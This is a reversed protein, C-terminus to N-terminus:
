VTTCVRERCSARGIKWTPTPTMTFTPTPTMAATPSWTQTLTLTPTFTRATPTMGFGAWLWDGLKEFPDGLTQEGIDVWKKYAKTLPAAMGKEPKRMVDYVHGGGIFGAAAGLGAMYGIMQKNQLNLPMSRAEIASAEVAGGEYAGGLASAFQVAAKEPLARGLLTAGKLTPLVTQAIGEGAAAVLLLNFMEGGGGFVDVIKAVGAVGKAQEPKYGAAVINKELMKSFDGAYLTQSGPLWDYLRMSIKPLPMKVGTGIDALNAGPTTQIFEPRTSQIIDQMEPSKYQAYEPRHYNWAIHEGSAKGLFSLGTAVVAPLQLASKLFYGGPAILMAPALVREVPATMQGVRAWYETLHKGLIEGSGAPVEASPIDMDTRPALEALRGAVGPSVGMIVTRGEPTTTTIINTVGARVFPDMSEFYAQPSGMYNKPLQTAAYESGSKLLFTEVPRPAQQVGRTYGPEGPRIPLATITEGGSIYVSPTPPQPVGRQYGPEGPKPISPVAAPPQPPAEPQQPIVTGPVNPGTGPQMYGPQGPEIPLTPQYGPREWLPVDQTSIYGGTLAREAAIAM